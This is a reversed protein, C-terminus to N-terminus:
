RIKNFIRYCNCIYRVVDPDINFSIQAQKIATEHNMGNNIAHSFEGVILTRRLSTLEDYQPKPKM